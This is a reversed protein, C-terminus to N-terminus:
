EVIQFQWRTVLQMRDQVISRPLMRDPDVILPADADAPGTLPGFRDLDRVIVSAFLQMAPM